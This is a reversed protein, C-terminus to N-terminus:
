RPVTWATQNLVPALGIEDESVALAPVSTLASRLAAEIQSLWDERHPGLVAVLPM